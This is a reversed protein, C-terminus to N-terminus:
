ENQESIFKKCKKILLQKNVGLYAAILSILSLEPMRKFSGSEIHYLCGRSIGIAQCIDNRPIKQATRLCRLFMPFELDSEQDIIEKVRAQAIEDRVNLIEKEKVQTIDDRLTM